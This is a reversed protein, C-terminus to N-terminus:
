WRPFSALSLRLALEQIVQTEGRRCAAALRSGIIKRHAERKIDTLWSPLPQNFRDALYSM